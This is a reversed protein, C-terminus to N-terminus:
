LNITEGVALPQCREGLAQQLQCVARQGTCHGPRIVAPDLKLLARATADIRERDAGMLHFGGIVAYLEDVGTISQAQRITNIIGSHACGTIVALGRGPLVAALAQDDPIIDPIYQGERITWFGEVKEFGELRPIEGTTFLGPALAVPGRCELFVAGAAEAQSRIFPLGIYGLAPRAKLKPSFIDPHALVPVRRKMQQLVAMLGGTHDYHGHSLCILDIADIDIHLLRCNHLLVEGSAGTDWLLKVGDSGLDLEVLISLGHEARLSSNEMSAFNEVAITLHLNQLM